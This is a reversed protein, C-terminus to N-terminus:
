SLMTDAYEEGMLIPAEHLCNLTPCIKSIEANAQGSSMVLPINGGGTGMQSSLTPVIGDDCRTVRSDNAHNEYIFNDCGDGNARLTGVGEQYGGFSSPTFCVAQGNAGDLTHAKEDAVGIGNAGTQATRVAIAHHHASSLTPSPDGDKGIGIGMRGDDSPRGQCNM